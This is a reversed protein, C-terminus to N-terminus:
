ILQCGAVLSVLALVCAQHQAMLNLSSKNCQITTVTASRDVQGRETRQGARLAIAELTVPDKRSM